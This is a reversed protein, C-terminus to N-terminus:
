QLYNRLIWAFTEHQELVGTLFDATVFDKSEDLKEISKRLEICITEHSKLLNDLMEDQTLSNSSEEIISNSIFEKMTGIAKEGLKTIREATEDIIKEVQNYQSDLMKHLEMFSRGEINWHFNRTKTYLVMETALIKTLITTSDKLEKKSLGIKTQM